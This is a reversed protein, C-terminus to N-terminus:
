PMLEGSLRRQLPVFGVSLTVNMGVVNRANCLLPFAGDVLIGVNDVNVVAEILSRRARVTPDLRTRDRESVSRPFDGMPEANRHINFLVM